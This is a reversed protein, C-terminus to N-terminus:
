GEASVAIVRWLTGISNKGAHELRFGGLVRDRLAKLRDGIVRPRLGKPDPVECLALVARGLRLQASTEDEAQHAKVDEIVDSVTVKRDGFVAYWMALLEAKDEVESSATERLTDQTEAPDACGAWILPARVEDSWAEFGGMPRMTVPPRGACRYAHLIVLACRLLRSRQMQAYEILRPIKFGTQLEPRESSPVIRCHLCRRALDITISANNGTILFQTQVSVRVNESSRVKRDSLSTSTLVSEFAGSDVKGKLNDFLTIPEGGLAIALLARHWESNDSPAAQVQARDGTVIASILQMLLTKGSGPTPADALIAPVPGSISPRAIITLVGALWSSRGAENEIPFQDVLALLEEAAARADDQSPHEPLEIEPLDCLLYRSSADYGDISVIGGTTMIPWHAIGRLERISSWEGLEHITSVVDAPPDTSSAVEDGEKTYHTKVWNASEALENKLLVKPLNRIHPAGVPQWVEDVLRPERVVHVLAGARQFVERQALAPLAVAVIAQTTPYADVSIDPPAARNRKPTSRGDNAPETVADWDIPAADGNWTKAPEASCNDPSPAINIM